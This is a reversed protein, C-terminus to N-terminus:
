ACDHCCECVDDVCITGDTGDCDLKFDGAACTFWSTNVPTCGSGSEGEGSSCCAGDYIAESVAFSTSGNKVWKGTPSVDYFSGSSELDLTLRAGDDGVWVAIDDVVSDVGYTTFTLTKTEGREIGVFSKWASWGSASHVKAYIRNTSGAYRGNGATLDVFSTRPQTFVLSSTKTTNAETAGGVTASNDAFAADSRYASLLLFSAILFRNM